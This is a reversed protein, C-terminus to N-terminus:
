LNLYQKTFKFETHICFLHCSNSVEIMVMFKLIIMVKMNQTHKNKFMGLNMCDATKHIISTM